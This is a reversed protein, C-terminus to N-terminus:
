NLSVTVSIFQHDPRNSAAEFYVMLTVVFISIAAGSVITQMSSAHIWFMEFRSKM